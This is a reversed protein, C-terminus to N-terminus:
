RYPSIRCRNRRFAQSLGMYFGIFGREIWSKALPRPSIGTVLNHGTYAGDITFFGQKAIIDAM